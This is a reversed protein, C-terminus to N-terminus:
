AAQLLEQFDAGQSTLTFDLIIVEASKTPKLLIKGRMENREIVATPNTTEDMVIQYDQLGRRALVDRLPPDVVGRWSRWTPADSQEFTFYRTSATIISKVKNLMRRVNVRDLATPARQLTKQGYIFIGEGVFSVIPNVNQGTGYMVEREGQSPSYVAQKSNVKGRRLGAPAWWPAAVRDTRAIAAAVFGSAAVIVDQENFEDYVIQESWWLGGYSSNLAASGGGSPDNHWDVIGQVDLGMPGDPVAFADKRAEATLLLQNVVSEDYMGPAILTDVYVEEVNEFKKIATIAKGVLTGSFGNLGGVFVVPDQATSPEGPGGASLVTAELWESGDVPDNIIEEVDARSLNDWVELEQLGGYTEYLTIKFGSETGAAVNLQLTNGYTGYELLQFQVSDVDGADVLTAIARGTYPDSLNIDDGTGGADSAIRVFWLVNGERLFQRAAYFAQSNPDPRGFKTIFDPEDTVLTLENLPGKTATGVMGLATPAAGAAYLSLDIERPYVGASVPSM